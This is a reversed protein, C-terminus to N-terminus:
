VPKGTPQEVVEEAPRPSGHGNEIVDEASASGGEPTLYVHANRIVFAAVGYSSNNPTFGVEVVATRDIDDM